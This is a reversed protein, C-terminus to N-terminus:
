PDRSNRSRPSPVTPPSVTVAAHSRPSRRLGSFIIYVPSLFIAGAASMLAIRLYNRGAALRSTEPHLPDYFVQLEHGVAFPGRELARAEAENAPDGVFNGYSDRAVGDVLYRYDINVSWSTSSSNKGVNSSQSRQVRSTTITATVPRYRALPATVEHYVDWACVFGVPLMALALLIAAANGLWKWVRRM